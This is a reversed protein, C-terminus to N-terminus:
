KQMQSFGLRGILYALGGGVILATISKLLFTILAKMYEAWSDSVPALYVLTHSETGVQVVRSSIFCGWPGVGMWNSLLHVVMIIFLLTFCRLDLPMSMYQYQIRLLACWFCNCM